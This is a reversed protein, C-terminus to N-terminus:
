MCGPSRKHVFWHMTVFSSIYFAVSMTVESTAAMLIWENLRLFAICWSPQLRKTGNAILRVGLVHRYVRYFIFLFFLQWFSVSLPYTHCNFRCFKSSCTIYYFFFFPFFLGIHQNQIVLHNRPIISKLRWEFKSSLSM